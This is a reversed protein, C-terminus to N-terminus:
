AYYWGRRRARGAQKGTPEDNLDRQEARRRLRRVRRKHWASVKVIRADKNTYGM